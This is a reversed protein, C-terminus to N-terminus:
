IPLKVVCIFSWKNKLDYIILFVSFHIYLFIIKLIIYFFTKSLLPILHFKKLFSKITDYTIIKIVFFLQISIKIVKEDLFIMKISKIQTPKTYEPQKWLKIVRVRLRWEIITPKIKKILSIKPAMSSCFIFFLFIRTVNIHYCYHLLIFFIQKCCLQAYSNQIFVSLQLYFVSHTM